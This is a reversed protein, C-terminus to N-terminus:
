VRNSFISPGVQGYSPNKVMGGMYGSEVSEVGVVRRYIAEGCWFCGVALTLHAVVYVYILTLLLLLLLQAFSVLVHRRSNEIIVCVPSPHHPIPTAPHLAVPLYRHIQRRTLVGFLDDIRSRAIM